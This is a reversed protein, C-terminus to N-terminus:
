LNKEFKQSCSPFVRKTFKKEVGLGTLSILPYATSSGFNFPSAKVTIELIYWMHYQSYNTSVVDAFDFQGSVDLEHLTEWAADTAQVVKVVLFIL